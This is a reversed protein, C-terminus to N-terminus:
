KLNKKWDALAKKVDGEYFFMPSRKGLEYAREALPYAEKYNGKAAVLQAKIWVNFWEERIALSQDVYKLGTDLDKRELMYRAASAYVRWDGQAAQKINAHVHDATAVKIPASVRLREWELDLSTADDTTNSFLFTMRERMPAAAPKVELRAADEERRYSGTTAAPNKNLIVTWAQKGPITLVSYTGAPVAKGGFTVDRSFTIKTAANAGTRWLKDHPVLGGWIKRGRVGPSSYELSVDTLGVRQSVKALPSLVPLELQALAPTSALVLMAMLPGPNRFTTRM